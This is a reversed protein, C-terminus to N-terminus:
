FTFPLLTACFGFDQALSMCTISHLLGLLQPYHLFSASTCLPIWPEAGGNNMIPTPQRPVNNFDHSDPFQVTGNVQDSFLLPLTSGVFVRGPSQFLHLFLCSVPPIQCVECSCLQAWPSLICCTPRSTM